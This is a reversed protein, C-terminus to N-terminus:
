RHGTWRKRYRDEIRRLLSRVVLPPLASTLALWAAERTRKGESPPEVGAGAAAAKSRVVPGVWAALVREGSDRLPTGFVVGDAVRELAERGLSRLPPLASPATGDALLGPRVELAAALARLTRLNVERRGREIASLNPRSIGARRALAEQTWGRELRWLRLTEGFPTM